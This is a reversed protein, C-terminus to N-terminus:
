EETESYLTRCLAAFEEHSVGRLKAESVILRLSDRMAAPIGQKAGATESVVAGSRRDTRIYGEQKLLQYAKSVTMMNVGSQEALARITPLKEGPALEGSAIGLVIQNRIQLYIPLKGSFDLSLLM